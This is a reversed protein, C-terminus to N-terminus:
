DERYQELPLSKVSQYWSAQLDQESDDLLVTSQSAEGIHYAVTESWSALFPDCRDEQELDAYPHSHAGSQQSLSISNSVQLIASTTSNESERLATHGTNV